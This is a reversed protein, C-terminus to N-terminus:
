RIYHFFIFSSVMYMGSVAKELRQKGPNISGQDLQRDWKTLFDELKGDDGFAGWETNICMEAPLGDTFNQPSISNFSFLSFTFLSGEEPHIQGQLKPIQDLTEM